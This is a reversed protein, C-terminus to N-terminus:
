STEPISPVTRVWSRALAYAARRPSHGPGDAGQGDRERRARPCALGRPSRACDVEFVRRMAPSEGIINHETDLLRDYEGQLWQVHRANALAAAAIGSVATLLQLHGNDFRVKPDTTDLYIIGLVRDLRIPVCLLSRVPTTILSEASGYAEHGVVDELLLSVGEALVKRAVTRSVRVPRGPGNARDVAFVSEPEEHEDEVLMIAGREAPIADLVLGLLRRELAEVDRTSSVAQSIRLLTGLDRAMITLADELRLLTAAKTIASGDM